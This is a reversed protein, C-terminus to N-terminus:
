LISRLNRRPACGSSRVGVHCELFVCYVLKHVIQTFPPLSNLIAKGYRKTIIRRDLLSIRGTDTETRLLRGCAQILKLSADTVLYHGCQYSCLYAHLRLQLSQRTFEVVLCRAIQMAM